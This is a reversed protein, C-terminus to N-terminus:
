FSCALRSYRSSSGWTYNYRPTYLLLRDWCRILDLHTKPYIDLEVSIMARRVIVYILHVAVNEDSEGPHWLAPDHHRAFGARAFAADRGAWRNLTYNLPVDSCRYINSDSRSALNAYSNRFEVLLDPKIALAQETADRLVSLFSTASRPRARSGDAQDRRHLRNQVWRSRLRAAFGNWLSRVFLTRRRASRRCIESACTSLKRDILLDALHQRRARTASWLPSVWLVLSFRAGAVAHVLAKMDTFKPCLAALGRRATIRSGGKEIFWGDDNIWTRFGLDAAIPANHM